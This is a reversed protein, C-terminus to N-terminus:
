HNLINKNLTDVEIRSSNDKGNNGSDLNGNKEEHLTKIVAFHLDSSESDAPARGPDYASNGLEMMLAKTNRGPGKGPGKEDSAFTLYGSIMNNFFVLQKIKAAQKKIKVREDAFDDISPTSSQSEKGSSAQGEDLKEALQRRLAERESEYRSKIQEQMAALKEKTSLMKAIDKESHGEEALYRRVTQDADTAMDKELQDGKMHLRLDAEHINKALEEKNEKFQACRVEDWAKECQDLLAKKEVLAQELGSDNVAENSTINTVGDVDIATQISADGKNFEDEKLLEWKKQIDATHILTQRLSKLYTTLQCARNQSYDYDEENCDTNQPCIFDFNDYAIQGKKERYCIYQVSQICLGWDNMAEPSEGQFQNLKKMNEKRIKERTQESKYLIFHRTADAEMCYSTLGSIINKSVASEYLDHFVKHNMMLKQGNKNKRNKVDSYLAEQLKKYLYSEVKQYAKDKPKTQIQLHALTDVGEYRPAEKTKQIDKPDKFYAGSTMKKYVEEKEKDGLKQWICRGIRKSDQKQCTQYHHKIKPDNILAKELKQIAQSDSDEAQALLTVFVLSLFIFLSRIM